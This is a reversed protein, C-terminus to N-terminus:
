EAGDTAIFHDIREATIQALETHNDPFVDAIQYRERFPEPWYGVFFLYEQQRKNVDLLEAADLRAQSYLGDCYSYLAESGIYAPKSLFAAWGAICGVTGCAPGTFPDVKRGWQSMKLRKPEELIHAKVKQLLEVNM